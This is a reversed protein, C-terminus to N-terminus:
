ETQDRLLRDLDQLALILKERLEAYGVYPAGAGPSYLALSETLEEFLQTELFNEVLVTELRRVAETSEDGALIVDILERLHETPTV